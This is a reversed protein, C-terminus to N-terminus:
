LNKKLKYYVFLVSQITSAIVFSSAIGVIGYIPTLVVILTIITIVFMIRGALVIKSNENGLFKSTLILAVTSPIVALSIIQIAIIAETYEPFIVPMIFPTITIGLVTIIVSLILAIVKAKTTTQDVSDHPLTYQYVVKSFIMFVAYFQLALAYNGLMEFGIIPVVIIKDINNRAIGSINIAYNNGVFGFHTKLLSFNIKSSKLVNFIIITFHIYSLALGFLIGEVGFIFYFSLGLGLTLSKQTVLYKSYKSFFKKGLLYGLGIDNIIFALILFNVDVKSFLFLLVLGSVIGAILSISILTSQLQIKKATYVSIVESTGILSITYGLGAIAILYQIEGYESPVLLAAIIFWFIATIGSGGANSITMLFLNNIKKM